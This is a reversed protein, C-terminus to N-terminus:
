NLEHWEKVAVDYSGTPGVNTLAEDYHFKSEKDITVEDALLAGYFDVQKKLRVEAQPAYIAGVFTGDKDIVVDHTGYIYLLFQPPTGTVNVSLNKDFDVQSAYVQVNGSVQIVSGKDAKLKNYCYPSHSEDFTFTADKPLNFDADCSMGSTDVPAVILTQTACVIPPTGTIITTGDTSVATSPDSLGPGVVVQGNVVTGQELEVSESTTNNTAITGKQGPANPDYPGLSSNYSDTFAWKKLEVSHDGFLPYQFVSQPTLIMRVQLNRQSGIYIGHGQIVYDFVGLGAMESSDLIQASYTGGGLTTSSIDTTTGARLQTIAQDVSAESLFLARVRGESLQSAQYEHFSRMLLTSGLVSLLVVFGYCAMLVVGRQQQAKRGRVHPKRM